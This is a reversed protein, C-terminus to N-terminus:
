SSVGGSSLDASEQDMREAHELTMLGAGEIDMHSLPSTISAAHMAAGIQVLKFSPEVEGWLCMDCWWERGDIKVTM